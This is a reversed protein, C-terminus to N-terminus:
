KNCIFERIISTDIDSLINIKCDEDNFGDLLKKSLLKFNYKRLSTYDLYKYSIKNLLGPKYFFEFNTFWPWNTKQYNNLKIGVLRLNNLINTFVIKEDSINIKNEGKNLYIKRQNIKLSSDKDSFIIVQYPLSNYKFELFSDESIIIDSNKNSHVIPNDSIIYNIDKLFKKKPFSKKYLFNNKILGVNYYYYFTTESGDFYIFKKNNNLTDEQFKKINEYNYYFNNKKIRHDIKEFNKYLNLCLFFPLTFIFIKKLTTNVVEKKPLSFMYQLSIILYCLLFITWTREALVNGHVTGANVFLISTILYFIFFLKIKKLEKSCMMSKLFFYFLIPNLYVFTKFSIKLLSILSEFILLPYSSVVYSNFVNKNYEFPSLTIYYSTIVLIFITFIFKYEDLLIKKALIINGWKSRNNLFIQYFFYSLISILFILAAVKHILISLFFFILSIYKNKFIYFFSIFAVISAITAPLIYHQGPLFNYHTSFIFTVLIIKYNKFYKKLIIITLISIFISTIIRLILDSKFINFKSLTIFKSLIFSYLPHYELILRHSQRNSIFREEETLDNRSYKYLNEEYCKSDICYNQNSAKALIHYHDDPEYTIARNKQVSLFFLLNFFIIVISSLTIILIDKKVLKM